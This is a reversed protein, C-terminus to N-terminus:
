GAAHRSHNELSVILAPIIGPLAPM